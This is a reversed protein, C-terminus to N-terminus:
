NRSATRMDNRTENEIIEELARNRIPTTVIDRECFPCVKNSDSVNKFCKECLLHDESCQFIKIPTLMDECCIPCEKNLEKIIEDYKGEQFRKNYIEYERKQKEYDRTKMETAIIKTASKNISQNIDSIIELMNHVRAQSKTDQQQLLFKIQSNGTRLESLRKVRGNIDKTLIKVQGELDRKEKNKQLLLQKLGDTITKANDMEALSDRKTEIILESKLKKLLKSTEEIEKNLAEIHKYRKILSIISKDDTANATELISKGDNGALNVDIGNDILFKCIDYKKGRVAHFLANHGNQDKINIGANNLLLLECVEVHGNFSAIILPTKGDEMKQNVHANNELLLTCVHVHGNKAAIYLPSAGSKKEQNVNANNELLLTCVYVHGNQAAIFLASAGSKKEQNIHANNRLLLTCVHVHGNQAALYLPSAGDEIQQNVPAKNKLM